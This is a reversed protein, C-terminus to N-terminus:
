SLLLLDRSNANQHTDDLIKYLLHDFLLWFNIQSPWNSKVNQQQQQDTWIGSKNDIFRNNSSGQNQMHPQYVETVRVFDFLTSVPNKEINQGM